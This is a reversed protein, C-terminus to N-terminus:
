PSDSHEVRTGPPSQLVAHLVSLLSTGTFPKTLLASMALSENADSSMAEGMGSIGIVRSEPDIRRLVRVFDPGDMGPMLMDTVVAAVATRNQMFVALAETGDAASVVRYGSAELIRTTVKRIAIEDDVILILEGQGRPPPARGPGALPQADPTAPLYIEFCTGKGVESKFQIFGGHSKVIGLVTPLGLGTGKGPAKTSYFPDFIKDLHEPPIGTGTDSVTLLVYPGSKAGPTMLSFTEDLDINRANLDLRGGESMADRANVCLNMLVQHLQTADGLVPWLDNAVDTELDINKPFTGRVIEAMESLLHRPQLAIRKGEIGRAFTLVQRIIHAGRKACAEMTALMNRESDTQAKQRLMESAMIIPSLVNNLDHALGSALAGLNELRQAQLFRAELQQKETIDTDIVFASVPQGAADKMLALRAFVVVERGTKTKRRREGSWDKNQLFTALPDAADDGPLSLMETAKRELAEAASWGYILEAGKNWSRITGDLATLYIADSTTDLLAVQERLREEAQKRGTVDQLTGEYCVVRGGSDRVTRVNESVWITRGDKHLAEYEFGDLAGREEMLRKFEDRRAPNVYGQRAIDTRNGMLEEPSAYGLIHALAANAVLLRGEPTSQFIGDVANDFISRYKQEALRLSKEANKRETIDRSIGVLGTFNGIADRLPVKTTSVWTIRGDPWTEQEEINILPQGTRLVQQEDEYAQRAHEESFFDFDSKGVAEGPSRLGFLQAMANNIRIFRSQRNKFYINDLSAKLLNTILAQELKLAEEARKHERRGAADRLEREVAPMLRAQKGKIIYDHAGAKMMAVAVEEGITGSVIIFPLDQGSAQLLELAALGSFRPMQYDSLIVDWPQRDLAARMAEATEVREFPVDYGGRQLEAVLLLADDESDDVILCHLTKTM